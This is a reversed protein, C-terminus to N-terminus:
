MAKLNGQARRHWNPRLCNSIPYQPACHIKGIRSRRPLPTANLCHHRLDRYRVLLGLFENAQPCAAPATLSLASGSRADPLFRATCFSNKRNVVPPAPVNVRDPTQAQSGALARRFAPKGPVQSIGPEPSYDFGPGDPGRPMLARTRSSRLVLGSM